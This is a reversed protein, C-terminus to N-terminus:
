TWDKHRLTYPWAKTKKLVRFAPRDGLWSSVHTVSTDPWNPIAVIPAPRIPPDESAAWIVDKYAQAMARSYFLGQGEKM